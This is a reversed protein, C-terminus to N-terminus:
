ECYQSVPFFSRDPHSHSARRRCWRSGSEDERGGRCTGSVSCSGSFPVVSRSRLIHLLHSAVRQHARLQKPTALPLAKCHPLPLQRNRGSRACRDAHTNGRRRLRRPDRRTSIMPRVELRTKTTHFRFARPSCINDAKGEIAAMSRVESIPLKTGLKSTRRTADTGSAVQKRNKSLDAYYAAIRPHPREIEIRSFM